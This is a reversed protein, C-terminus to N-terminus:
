CLVNTELCSNKVILLGGQSHAFRRTLVLVCCDSSPDITYKLTCHTGNLISIIFRKYKNVHPYIVHIICRKRPHAFKQISILALKTADTLWFKILSLRQPWCAKYINAPWKNVNNQRIRTLFCSYNWFIKGLNEWCFWFM